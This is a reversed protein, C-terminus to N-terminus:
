AQIFTRNTVTVALAMGTKKVDLLVLAMMKTVFHQIPANEVNSPVGKGTLDM